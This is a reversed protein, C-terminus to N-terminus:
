AGACARRGVERLAGGPPCLRRPDGRACVGVSGGLHCERPIRLQGLRLAAGPHQGPLRDSERDRPPQPQRDALRDSYGAPREPPSADGGPRHAPDHLSDDGATRGAGGTRPGSGPRPHDARGRRSFDRGGAAARDTALELNGMGSLRQRWYAMQEELVGGSLWDRQWAAYDAYQVPLRALAAPRDEALERYFAIIEDLLLEASWADAAIHHITFLLMFEEDGLRLLGARLLPGRLLDFPRRVEADIQRSVEEARRTTLTTLDAQWLRIELSPAIRQWPRGQHELFTTRLMEHRRMVRHVAAEFWAPNLAGRIRSSLPINYASSGPELQDIFWLREQAFSAPIPGDRDVRPIPSLEVARAETVAAALGAVTPHEFLQRVELEVGLAARLRALVRTALLSHGGIAFFDDGTGIRSRGLVECWIAAIIEESATRPAVYNDSGWWSPAPLARRDLKGALTLPLRELTVFATPVMHVPLQAALFSRLEDMTPGEGQAVVYAALQREAGAAEEEAMGAVAMDVVAVEALAPHEALAATIEGLEIRHGRIKVQDDARGLFEVEGGPRFRALDGTKYLRRGGGTLSDPIFRTATQGPRGRYGRALGPGGILIESVVGIPVPRSDPDALYIRAGAVPRGIPVVTDTATEGQKPLRHELAFVTAETPGYRNFIEIDGGVLRRGLEPPVAEAGLGLQRVTRGNEAFTGDEILPALASPTFGAVTIRQDRLQRLLYRGDRQGGPRTLVLRAGALLPRFIEMISMDFSLTTKQLMADGPGLAAAQEAMLNAVARHSVLVGKPHRDLGFHLDHLRRQRPPSQRPLSQRPPSQRPPSQRPPSQRPPSQRPPSQRPPSQRPPDVSPACADRRSGSALLVGASGVPQPGAPESARAPSPRRRLSAPFAGRHDSGRHRADELMFRLRDEPYDPDLPLYAAGAELIAFLATIMEPSRELCLGALSEPRVGLRILRRALKGARRALESYTLGRGEQIVAMADPLQRAWSFFIEHLLGHSESQRRPENWEVLTQQRQGASLLPLAALPREPDEGVAELLTTLCSALRVISVRDFLDTKYDWKGLLAGGLPGSETATASLTLDFQSSASRLKISELALPGLSFATGEDGLLLDALGVEEPLRDQQWALMVQFLPARGQPGGEALEEALLAFPYVRHAYAGLVSQRTRELHGQFSDGALKGRPALEGRLVVPNVFYGVLGALEASQRLTTPAGVALDRQGALRGLLAQFAALLTIFPTAGAAEGLALLRGTVAPSLRWSLQGGAFSEARQPPRDMPLDLAPPLGRLREHWYAALREGVPGALEARQRRAYDGYTLTLPSLRAPPGGLEAQYLEGLEGLLVAISWFDVVIHHFSLVLVREEARRFIGLRVLHGHELDFPRYALAHLAHEFADTGSSPQDSSPQDSSADIVTVEPALQDHVGRGRSTAM